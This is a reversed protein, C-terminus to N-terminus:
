RESGAAGARQLEIYFRQPFLQAWERALRENFQVIAESDRLESAQDRWVDRLPSLEAAVLDQWNAPLDDVPSWGAGSDSTM